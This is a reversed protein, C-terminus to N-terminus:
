KRPRDPELRQRIDNAKPNYYTMAQKPNSWGFMRCLDLVSLKPAIMTAATHRTDHFTFGSLGARNRYRRFLADLTQSSMGFVLLWDWGAMSKILRASKYTLPVDRKGTKGNVTCYGERVDQWRLSCLEGARIGTRMALLFAVCVAQTASSCQGSHYSMARLMRIAQFAHIVIERHDPSRPKKVDKMPNSPCWKWERRATEFVASLLASDRLVTGASVVKLRADRWKGLDDSSIDAIPVDVPLASDDKLYAAIRVEEWKQGRKTPSVTDKYRELAQRLTHLSNDTAGRMEAERKTAWAVAERKTRFTGSDRLKNVCLQARYGKGSPIISAM